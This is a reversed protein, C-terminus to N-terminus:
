EYEMRITDKDLLMNLLDAPNTMITIGDTSELESFLYEPGAVIPHYASFTSSLRSMFKDMWDVSASHKLFTLMHDPAIREINEALDKMPVRAGLYVVKDGYQRILFNAYLLGIEHEEQEPLFLVWKRANPKPNALKDSATFLKQRILNSIFHEQCVEMESKSWMLGTRFLVPSLVRTYTDELGFRILCDAFTRHFVEEDYTLASMLLANTERAYSTNSHPDKTREELESAMEDEDLKAIQSIRMGCRVLVAVNLLKRLQDDDYFRINTETRHPVLLDYRQEWMRITHAKIGSFKELDAISYNM